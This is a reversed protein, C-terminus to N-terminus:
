DSAGKALWHMHPLGKDLRISELVTHYTARYQPFQGLWSVGDQPSTQDINTSPSGKSRLCKGMVTAMRPLLSADGSLAPTKGERWATLIKEHWACVLQDIQLRREEDQRKKLDITAPRIKM